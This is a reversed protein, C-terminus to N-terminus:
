KVFAQPYNKALNTWDKMTLTEARQGPQIKNKLLWANIIEKKFGLQKSLNNSLQKRPQSFGAKTIKFFLDRDMKPTQKPIIKLVAGDVKPKPWFFEKPVFSIIKPEAYFQVSAALLNMDPPKATIRQAVEKQVMLVMLEPPNPSELFKRITPTAVYYPLNAVVKYEQFGFNSVRFKLIDKQIIKINKFNGVTEKLIEIMNQDKEAAIVKKARKALEQTLSGIGPGIELVIDNPKLDSAEVVKDITEKDILFNQGFKKLPRTQHKKLLEKITKESTLDM